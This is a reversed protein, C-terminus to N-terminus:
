PRLIPALSSGALREEWRSLAHWKYLKPCSSAGAASAPTVPRSVVKRTSTAMKPTPPTLLREVRRNRRAVWDAESIIRLTHRSEHSFSAQAAQTAHLLLCAKENSYVDTGCRLVLQASIRRSHPNGSDESKVPWRNLLAMRLAIRVREGDTRLCPFHLYIRSPTSSGVLETCCGDNARDECRKARGLRAGKDLEEHGGEGLLMVPGAPTLRLASWIHVFRLVRRIVRCCHSPSCRGTGPRAM